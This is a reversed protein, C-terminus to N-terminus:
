HNVKMNMQYIEVGIDIFIKFMRELMSFAPKKFLKKSDSILFAQEESPNRFLQKKTEKKCNGHSKHKFKKGFLTPKEVRKKLKKGDLM